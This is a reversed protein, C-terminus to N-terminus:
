KEANMCSRQTTTKAFYQDHLRWTGVYIGLLLVSTVIFLYGHKQPTIAGLLPYSYSQNFTFLYNAWMLYALDFVILFIGHYTKFTFYSTNAVRANPLPLLTTSSSSDASSSSSSFPTEFFSSYVFLEIWLFLMPFVHLCFDTFLPSSIGLRRLTPSLLLDPALFRLTWYLIFVATEVPLILAVLGNKVEILINDMKKAVKTKYFYYFYIDLLLSYTLCFITILLSLNTVFELRGAYRKSLIRWIEPHSGYLSFGYLCLCIM